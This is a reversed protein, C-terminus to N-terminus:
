FHTGVFRFKITQTADTMKKVHLITCFKTQNRKQKNNDKTQQPKFIQMEHDFTTYILTKERFYFSSLSGLDRKQGKASFHRM